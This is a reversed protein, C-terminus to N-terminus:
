RPKPPSIRKFWGWKYACYDILREPDAGFILALDGAQRRREADQGSSIYRKGLIHFFEVDENGHSTSCDILKKAAAAIVNDRPNSTAEASLVAVRDWDLVDWLGAEEIPKHHNPM